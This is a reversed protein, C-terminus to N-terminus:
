KLHAPYGKINDVLDSDFLLLPVPDSLMQWMRIFPQSNGYHLRETQDSTCIHKVRETAIFANERAGM